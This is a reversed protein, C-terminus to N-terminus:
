RDQLERGLTTWDSLSSAASGVPRDIRTESRTSSALLQDRTGSRSGVIVILTLLGLLAGAILWALQSESALFQLLRDM